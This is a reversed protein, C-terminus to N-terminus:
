TRDSGLRAEAWRGGGERAACTVWAGVRRKEKKKRKRVRGPGNKKQEAAGNIGNRRRRWHAWDVERDKSLACM